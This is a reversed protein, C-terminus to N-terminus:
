QMTRRTNTNKKATQEAAAAPELCAHFTLCTEISPELNREICQERTYRYAQPCCDRFYSENYPCPFVPAYSSPCSKMSFGMKQCRQATNESKINVVPAPQLNNGNQSSSSSKSSSSGDDGLARIGAHAFSAISLCMFLFLIKKM